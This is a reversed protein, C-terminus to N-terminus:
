LPEYALYVDYNGPTDDHWAVFAKTSKIAIAPCDSYGGNTTLREVDLWTDGGDLSKKFYIETVGGSGAEAMAVCVNLGSVAIQPLCDEVINDTLRQVAQWNVGDNISKRFYIEFVGPTDDEWVLYVNTGSVAIAPDGSNGANYTIRKTDEWSVGGDLSRKFYIEYNGPAADCWTVYVNDGSAAIEKGSIKAPTSTLKQAAQWNVGGNVSRRFYVDYNGQTNDGYIMYVNSGSVAIEPYSSEGANNTLRKNSGWTAGGDTSRKLYIERNGPSDDDWVAFINAGSLAIDPHLSEGTNSTLRKSAQWNAGNDASQKFFIEKNGPNDDQWLVYVNAGNVAVSPFRTDGANNTLRKTVWAGLALSVVMLCVGVVLVKRM